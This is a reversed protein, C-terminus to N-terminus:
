MTQAQGTAALIRMKNDDILSLLDNLTLEGSVSKNIYENGVEYMGQDDLDAIENAIEVRQEDSLMSTEPWQEFQQIYYNAVEAKMRAYEAEEDKSSVPIVEEQVNEDGNLAKDLEAVDVHSNIDENEHIGYEEELAADLDEIELEAIQSLEDSGSKAKVSTLKNIAKEATSHLGRGFKKFPNLVSKITRGNNKANELMGFQRKENGFDYGGFETFAHDLTDVTIPSVGIEDYIKKRRNPDNITPFEKNLLFNFAKVVNNTENESWGFEEGLIGTTNSDVLVKRTGDSIQFRLKNDETPVVSVKLSSGPNEKKFANTIKKAVNNLKHVFSNYRRAAFTDVGFDYLARLGGTVVLGPGLMVVSGGVTLGLGITAVIGSLVLGMSKHYAKSRRVSKVKIANEMTIQRRQENTLVKKSSIEEPQSNNQIEENDGLIEGNEPDNEVRPKEQGNQLNQNEQVNETNPQGQVDQHNQAGQDNEVTPEQKVQQNNVPQNVPQVNGLGKTVGDYLFEAADSYSSKGIENGNVKCYVDMDMVDNRSYSSSNEGITRAFQFLVGDIANKTLEEKTFELPRNDKLLYFKGFNCNVSYKSTQPNFVIDVTLKSYDVKDIQDMLQEMEKNMDQMRNDLFQISDVPVEGDLECFKEIEQIFSRCSNINNYISQFALSSNRIANYEENESYRPMMGFESLKDNYRAVLADFLKAYNNLKNNYVSIDSQMKAKINNIVRLNHERKLSDVSQPDMAVRLASARAAGTYGEEIEKRRKDINAIEEAFEQIKKIQDNLNTSFKKFNFFYESVYMKGENDM